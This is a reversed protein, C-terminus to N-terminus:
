DSEANQKGRGFLSFGGGRKEQMGELSQYINYNATLAKMTEGGASANVTATVIADCIDAVYDRYRWDFKWKIENLVILKCVSMEEFRLRYAIENKGHRSLARNSSTMEELWGCIADAGEENMIKGKILRDHFADINKSIDTIMRAIDTTPRMFPAETPIDANGMYQNQKDTVYDFTGM